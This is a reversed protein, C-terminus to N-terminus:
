VLASNSDIPGRPVFKLPTKISIWINENLFICKLHNDAFNCGNRTLRLPNILFLLQSKIEFLFTDELVQCRQSIIQIKKKKKKSIIQIIKTWVKWVHKLLNSFDYTSKKRSIYILLLLINHTSIENWNSIQWIYFFITSFGWSLGAAKLTGNNYYTAPILLLNRERSLNWYHNFM